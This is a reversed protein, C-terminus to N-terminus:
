YICLTECGNGCDIESCKMGGGFFGGHGNVIVRRKEGAGALGLCATLLRSQIYSQRSRCKVSCFYATHPREHSAAKVQRINELNTRTAAHTLVENRKIALCRAMELRTSCERYGPPPCKPQEQKRSSHANMHLTKHPCTNENSRPM